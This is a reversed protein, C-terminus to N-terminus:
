ARERVPTDPDKAETCRSTVADRRQWPHRTVIGGVTFRVPFRLRIIRIYKRTLPVRQAWGFGPFIRLRTQGLNWKVRRKRMRNRDGCINICVTLIAGHIGICCELVPFRDRLLFVRPHLFLLSIHINIRQDIRGQSLIGIYRVVKVQSKSKSIDPSRAARSVSKRM